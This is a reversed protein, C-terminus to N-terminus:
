TEGDCGAVGSEGGDDGEDAGPGDLMPDFGPVGIVDPFALFGIEPGFGVIEEAVVGDAVHVTEVGCGHEHDVTGVVFDDIRGGRAGEVLGGLRKVFIVGGAQPEYHIFAYAMVERLVEDLEVGLVPEMEMDRDVLGVWFGSWGGGFERLGGFWCSWLAYPMDTCYSIM